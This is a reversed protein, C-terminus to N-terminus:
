RERLVQRLRKLGRHLLGAVAAESRELHAALEKLSWDSLYRLMVAQRQDDPLGAMARSMALLQEGRAADQSPSTQEALLWSEARCCSDEIAAELPKERRVDRKERYMARFADAVNHILMKRLWATLAAENGRFQQRREFAEALTEQVIDSAAIRRQHGAGLHAHALVALYPRHRELHSGTISGTDSRM